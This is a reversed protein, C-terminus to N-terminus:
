FVASFLEDELKDGAVAGLLGVSRFTNHPKSFFDLCVGPGHFKNFPM